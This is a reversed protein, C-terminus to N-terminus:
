SSRRRLEEAIKEPIERCHCQSQHVQHWAIRQDLSANRPMSNKKHWSANVAM